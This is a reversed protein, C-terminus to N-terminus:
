RVSITQKNASTTTARTNEAIPAVENENHKRLRIDFLALNLEEQKSRNFIEPFRKQNYTKLRDKRSM